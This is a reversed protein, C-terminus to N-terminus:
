AGSLARGALGAAVGNFAEEINQGARASTYFCPSLYEASLEEVIGSDFGPEALDTKNVLLIVPVDAGASRAAEVWKWLSLQTELRAMDAVVIAADAGQLFPHAVAPGLHGTIEWLMLKMRIDRAAAPHRVTVTKKLVRAGVTTVYMENFRDGAMAHVLSSKGVAPDGLICVKATITPMAATGACPSSLGRRVARCGIM